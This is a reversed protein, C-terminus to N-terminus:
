SFDDVKTKRELEKFAEQIIECLRILKHPEVPVTPNVKPTFPQQARCFVTMFIQGGRYLLKISYDTVKEFEWARPEVRATVEMSNAAFEADIIKKIIQEM